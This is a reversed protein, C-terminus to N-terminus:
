HSYALKKNNNLLYEPDLYGRVEIAVIEDDSDVLLLYRNDKNKKPSQIMLTVDDGNDHVRALEEYSDKKAVKNIFGQLTVDQAKFAAEPIVILRITKVDRIAKTYEHEGALRLITRAFFGSTSFSFSDGVGSFKEKLTIFSKSQSFATGTVILCLALTTTISKM